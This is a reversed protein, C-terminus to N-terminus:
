FRYGIGLQSVSNRNSLDDIIRIIGANGRLFLDFKDTLKYSLGLDLSVDFKNLGEYNYFNITEGGGSVKASILYGFQLGVDISLRQQWVYFKFMLPLNIYDFKDTEFIYGIKSSGGQMSYMLEPQFGVKTSVPIEMFFGLHIGTRFDTPGNDTIENSVNLGGKVGWQFRKVEKMPQPTIVSQQPATQTVIREKTIKEVEAIKYAFLNGDATEIKLLENPVQEIIVGRIISGNKLYVVDQYNNQASAPTTNNIIVNQTNDHIAEARGYSDVQSQQESNDFKEIAGNQYLISSVMDKYLFSGKGQPDFFYKYKIIDDKIDTVIAEIRSGKKLTIIDQANTLVSTCCLTTMILVYRLLHNKM